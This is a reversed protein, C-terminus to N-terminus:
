GGIARVVFHGDQGCRGSGPRTRVPALFVPGPPGRRGNSKTGPNEQAAHHDESHRRTNEDGGHAQDLVAEQDHFPGNLDIARNDRAGERCRSDPDTQLEGLGPHHGDFHRDFDRHFYADLHRHGRSGEHQVRGFNVLKAERRALEFHKSEDGFSEACLLHCSPEEHALVGDLRVRVAHEFLKARTPPRLRHSQAAQLLYHDMWATALGDNGARFATNGANRVVGASCPPM